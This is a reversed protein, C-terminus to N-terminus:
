GWGRTKADVHGSLTVDTELSNSVDQRVPFSTM